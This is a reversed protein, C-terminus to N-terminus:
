DDNEDGLGFFYNYLKEWKKHKIDNMEVMAMADAAYEADSTKSNQSPCLKLRDEGKPILKHVKSHANDIEDRSVFHMFEHTIIFETNEHGVPLLRKKKMRDLFDATAEASNMYKSNLHLSGDPSVFAFDKEDMKDDVFIQFFHKKHKQNLEELKDLMPQIVDTNKLKSFDVKGAMLKEKAFALSKEVAKKDAQESRIIYEKENLTFSEDAAM